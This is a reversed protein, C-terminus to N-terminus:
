ELVLCLEPSATLSVRAVGGSSDIRREVDTAAHDWGLCALTGDLALDVEAAGAETEGAAVAWLALVRVGDPRVFALGRASAPLALAATAAADYSAGELAEGLTAYATGTELRVADEVRALTAYNEYLGMTQFPETAEAAPRGDGLSFWDIGLLGASQGLVMAKVLFNRAYEPGSPVGDFAKHSAGLETVVYTKGTVGHADLVAQFRDRSALLGAAGADSSGPTWNPYYHFSVVDFWADGTSPHGADISGDAPNDSYRVLADLFTEYGIGGTAVAATPDVRTVVEKTIRLLRIYDYISANWWVLEDAAPPRSAWERTAAWNGGVQDPENWVEWIRVYPRYIEVTRHVYAAWDNDPNVSGDPLWIPEHLDRPAWRDLEWDAVTAPATSHERTPGILFAVHDRLGVLGYYENDGVEIEWGWRELHYEPLKIRMSDCGAGAALRASDRDTFAPNHYGANIGRRFTRAPPVVDGDAVDGEGDGGGDVDADPSAGDDGGTTEDAVEGADTADGAGSDDACAASGLCAWVLLGFRTMRSGGYRM